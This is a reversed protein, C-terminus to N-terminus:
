LLHVCDPDYPNEIKNLKRPQGNRINIRFYTFGDCCGRKIWGEEDRGM